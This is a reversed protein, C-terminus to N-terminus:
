GALHQPGGHPCRRGFPQLSGTRHFLPLQNGVRQDHSHHGPPQFRAIAPVAAQEVTKGARQWSM